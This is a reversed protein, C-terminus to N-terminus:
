TLNGHQPLVGNLIKVIELNRLIAAFGVCVVIERINESGIYALRGNWM